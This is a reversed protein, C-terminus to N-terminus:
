RWVFQVTRRHEVVTLGSAEAIALGGFFEAKTDALDFAQFVPHGLFSSFTESGLLAALRAVMLQRRFDFRLRPFQEARVIGVEAGRESLLFEDFHM